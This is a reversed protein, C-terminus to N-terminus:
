EACKGAEKKAWKMLEEANVRPPKTGFKNEKNWDLLAQLSVVPVKDKKHYHLGAVGCHKADKEEFGLVKETM